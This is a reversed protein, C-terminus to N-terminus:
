ARDRPGDEQVSDVSSATLIGAEKATEDSDPRVGLVPVVVQRWLIGIRLFIPPEQKLLMDHPIQCRSPSDEKEKEKEM